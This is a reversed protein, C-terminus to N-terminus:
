KLNKSEGCITQNENLLERSLFVSQAAPSVVKDWQVTQIFCLNPNSAVLAPGNLSRYRSSASHRSTRTTEFLCALICPRVQKYALHFAGSRKSTPWFRSTPSLTWSNSKCTAPSLASQVCISCTKSQFPFLNELAALVRVCVFVRSRAHVCVRVCVCVCSSSHNFSNKINQM